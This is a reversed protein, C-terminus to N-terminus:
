CLAAGYEVRGCEIYVCRVDCKGGSLREDKDKAGWGWEGSTVPDM